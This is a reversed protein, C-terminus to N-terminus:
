AEGVPGLIREVQRDRHKTAEVMQDHEIVCLLSHHCHGVLDFAM